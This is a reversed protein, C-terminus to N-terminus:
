NPHWSALKQMKKFKFVKRMKTINIPMIPVALSNCWAQRHFSARIIYKLDIEVFIKTLPM